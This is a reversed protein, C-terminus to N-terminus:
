EWLGVVVLVLRAGAGRAGLRREGEGAGMAEVASSGYLKRVEKSVTKRISSEAEM